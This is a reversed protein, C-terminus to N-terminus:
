GRGYGLVLLLAPVGGQADRGLAARNNEIKIGVVCGAPILSSGTPEESNSV